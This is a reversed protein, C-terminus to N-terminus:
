KHVKLLELELKIEDCIDKILDNDPYIVDKPIESFGDTWFNKHNPIEFKAILRQKLDLETKSVYEYTIDETGVLCGEQFYARLAQPPMISLLRINVINHESNISIRNTYYPLGFVYVYAKSSENDMQAFTCAVRLSQTFDLLPTEVVEYHQLVSWQIYKKRTLENHGIIKNQKFKQILLKSATDLLTFKEQLQKKVIGRYISPYFTSRKAKNKFDLKQGRYFLIYDKNKYALKATHEVLERFNHIPYGINKAVDEPKSHKKLEDSLKGIIQRM